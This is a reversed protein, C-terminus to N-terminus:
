PRLYEVFGTQTAREVMKVKQRDGAMDGFAILQGTINGNRENDIKILLNLQTTSSVVVFESAAVEVVMAEYGQIAEELHHLGRIKSEFQDVYCRFFRKSRVGHKFERQIAIGAESAM